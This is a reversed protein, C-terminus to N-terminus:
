IEERTEFLGTVSQNIITVKGGGVTNKNVSMVGANESGNIFKLDASPAVDCRLLNLIENITKIKKYLDDSDKFMEQNDCIKQIPNAPRNKYIKSLKEKLKDYLKNVKENSLKDLSESIKHEEKKGENKDLYKEVARLIETNEGDLRLQIAGKFQLNREDEGRIRMPFGNIEMLTNKKIKPVIIEVNKLGKVEKCYDEFAKPNHKLQSAVYIPVGIINKVRKGKKNDFEIQAFYSTGAGRYGGYKNPDLGAKLKINLNKNDKSIPNADFLEGKGCYTYETHLLNDQKMIKRVRDITGGYGVGEEDEICKEWIIKDGRKVDFSFIRNLSYEEKKNKKFWLIPNSTFKANYVDGVVINLYADKGHHYDNIRRSKLVNLPKKRFQSALSAKVYVIETDENIRKLLEAVAKSSQRTEVIQRSIFGALEEETFGGKRTLRNYKKKSIFGKELLAKWYGIMKKQIEGDLVDNSKRANVAKNVLVLNDISDDKIKSQPYIHDRDWKSNKKMLEELDIREGTYMCKGWQTFYLYLKMSNLDREEFAELKESLYRVDEKCSKYLEELAKKRSVTRKGKEGGGRAMEVFIKEPPCGMVKKIEESIQVSQWIARKTAPSVYMTDVLEEYSIKEIKETVKDNEKEIEKRFTFRESLLQMLNENTEWMAEILKFTEGSEIDAGDIGKLFKRSFNGWGSYRFKCVKKLQEETLKNPYEKEIVRRIMKSDDGYITIWRIIDEIMTQIESKDLGEEPFIQKKFDMYSKLSTHFDNDFGSLDEKQLGPLDKKLYELVMKGTVKARNQFLNRYIDQKTKVSVKNGRIRLNNLENLVMYKSYLLSNKPLVDEGVLYTCKNTMRQIFAENSKNYDVIKEINWPYIKGNQGDKRVMWNNSGQKRHRDSLPGVFYPIRFEFISVIKNKNSIGEDDKENLFPMYKAANELIKILEAKHIQNPVVGNSKNRQLPLIDEIQEAELFKKAIEYGYDEEGIAELKKRLEKLFNDTQNKKVTIKKGNKNAAGIYSSYSKDNKDMFFSKYVDRGFNEHILKKIDKLNNKHKEYQTVKANSIYHEGQLIEMLVRWDYVGKALDIIHIFNPIESEMDPRVDEEYNSEAFSFSGKTLSKKELNFLKEVDGRNGVILKFIIETIGNQRRVEDKSLLNDTIKLCEKIEKVKESKAKSRDTLISKIQEKVTETKGEWALNEKLADNLKDFAINFDKAEGLNGEILFHGRSKLIHHIALYVLRPDHPNENEILEKRLHYVTPYQEYYHIDNYDEGIFLPHKEKVYKDEMHLKSENLRIFFTNDVNAIEQSFIEQLLKIRQNRRRLRRRANRKLRRESATEASEFLRIGWMDKGRFRCLNYSEDTVAWGVSNTGIDLGLYYNRKEM